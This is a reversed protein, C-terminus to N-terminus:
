NGTSNPEVTIAFSTELVQGNGTRPWQVPITQVAKLQSIDAGLPNVTSEPIATLTEGFSVKTFAGDGAVASSGGIGWWGNVNITIEGYPENNYYTALGAHNDGALCVAYNEDEWRTFLLTAPGAGRYTAARGNFEGLPSPHVYEIKEKETRGDTYRTWTQGYYITKANLGAGDTWEDPTSIDAETVPFILENFPVEGMSQGEADYATVVLGTFNIADGDTYTTVNPPTTVRIESPVKTEVINGNPDTTVTYDNGDAKKGTVSNSPVKVVARSFGMLGKDSAKYTGNKNIAITGTQTESFPIWGIRGSGIGITRIRPTDNYTEPTGNTQIIINKSV